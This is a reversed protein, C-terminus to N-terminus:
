DKKQERIIKEIYSLYRYIHSQSYNTKYCIQRVSLGDIYKAVFIKEMTGRMKRLSEEMCKLYYELVEIEKTLEEIEKDVKAVKTVYDLIANNATQMAKIDSNIKAAGPQTAQFYMERKEQLTQLRDKAIKLELMQDYYNKIEMVMWNM